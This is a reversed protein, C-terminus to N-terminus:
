AHAVAAGAVRVGAAGSFTMLSSAQESSKQCQSTMPKFLLPLPLLLLLHPRLWTNQFNRQQLLRRCRQGKLLLLLVAGQVADYRSQGLSTSVSAPTM